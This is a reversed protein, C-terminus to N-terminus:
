VIAEHTTSTRDTDGEAAPFYLTASKGTMRLALGSLLLFAAGAGIGVWGVMWWAFSSFLTGRLLNGDLATRRLGALKPDGAPNDATASARSAASVEEYTSFGAPELAAAVHGKIIGQFRYADLGNEVNQGAWKTDAGFTIGQEALNSDVMRVAVTGGVLGGLGFLALVVIAIYTSLTRKM